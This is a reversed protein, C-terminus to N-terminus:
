FKIFSYVYGEESQLVLRRRSLNVITFSRHRDHWDSYTLIETFGEEDCSMGISLVKEEQTRFGAYEKYSDQKSLYIQLSFLSMSQFNYWVTDVPTTTGNKEVTKLQWKGILPSFSVDDCAIFFLFIFLILVNLKM